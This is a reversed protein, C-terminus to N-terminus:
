QQDAPQEAASCNPCGGKSEDYRTGCQTCFVFNEPKEAVPAPATQVPPAQYFPAQPPVKAPAPNQDKLKRNIQIINNVALVAMMMFEYIIRMLVPGFIMLLLGSGALSRFGGGGLWGGYTQYGSFLLFFGCVLCFITSLIYLAKLIKEIVLYKFNFLDHLFRFFPNLGDRKKAPTIFILSLVTGVIACILGLVFAVMPNM